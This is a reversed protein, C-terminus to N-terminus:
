QAPNVPQAISAFGDITAESTSADSGFIIGKVPQIYARMSNYADTSGSDSTALPILAMVKDLYTILSEPSLYTFGNHTAHLQAMTTKFTEDQSLTKGAYAKDFGPYLTVFAMNDNTVGYWLQLDKLLAFVPSPATSGQLKALEDVNLTVKYAKGGAVEATSHIFIDPTKGAATSGAAAQKNGLAILGMFLEDLKAMLKQGGESHGSVDSYLGISPILSGSDQLVFAFGKDFLALVDNDFDLGAGQFFQKMNDIGQKMEPIDNWIKFDYDLIQKLGYGESYVIAKESPLKQYLYPDHKGFMDFNFNAKKLLAEDGFVNGFIRFGKDEATLGFIESQLADIIEKGGAMQNLVQKSEETATPDNYIIGFLKQVNIYAFGVSAPVKALAKQYFADQVMSGTDNSAAPNKEFAAYRDLGAKADELSGSVFLADKVLVAYGGGKEDHYLVHAGYTEKKFVGNDAMKNLFAEAKASDGIQIVFGIHPINMEPSGQAQVPMGAFSMLMQFHDGIVPKLDAEYSMKYKTLEENFSDIMGQKFGESAEKPFRALLTDFGKQQGSDSSGVKMLMLSDKPLFAEAVVGQSTKLASPGSYNGSQCGAVALVMVGLLAVTIRSPFSSFHQRM